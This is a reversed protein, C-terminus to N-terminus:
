GLKSQDLETNPDLESSIHLEIKLSTFVGRAVELSSRVFREVNLESIAALMCVVDDLPIMKNIIEETNSQCAENLGIFEESPFLNFPRYVLLNLGIDKFFKATESSWIYLNHYHTTLNFPSTKSGYYKQVEDKPSFIAFYIYALLLFICIYRCPSLLIQPINRNFPTLYTSMSMIAHFGCLPRPYFSSLHTSLDVWPAILPNDLKYGQFVLCLSAIQTFAERVDFLLRARIMSPLIVIPLTRYCRSILLLSPPKQSVDRSKLYAIVCSPMILKGSLEAAFVYTAIAMARAHTLLTLINSSSINLEIKNSQCEFNANATFNAHVSSASSSDETVINRIHQYLEMIASCSRKWISLLTKNGLSFGRLQRSYKSYLLRLEKLREADIQTKRRTSKRIPRRIRVTQTTIRLNRLSETYQETTVFQASENDEIYKCHKCVYITGDTQLELTGLRCRPCRM